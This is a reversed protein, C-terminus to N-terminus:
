LQRRVTRRVCRAAAEVQEPNDGTSQQDSDDAHHRDNPKHDFTLRGCVRITVSRVSGDERDSGTRVRRGFRIQSRRIQRLLLRGSLSGSGEETCEKYMRVVQTGERGRRERTAGRELASVCVCLRVGVSLQQLSCFRFYFTLTVLENNHLCFTLFVTSFHLVNKDISLLYEDSRVLLFPRGPSM